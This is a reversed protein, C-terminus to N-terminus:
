EEKIINNKPKISPNPFDLPTPSPTDLSNDKSIPESTTQLYIANKNLIESLTYDTEYEAEIQFGNNLFTYDQRIIKSFDNRIESLNKNKIESILVKRNHLPKENLYFKIEVKDEM